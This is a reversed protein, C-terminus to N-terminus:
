FGVEVRSFIVLLRLVIFMLLCRLRREIGLASERDYNRSGEFCVADHNDRYPLDQSADGRPHFYARTMLSQELAQSGFDLAPLDEPPLEAVDAGCLAGDCATARRIKCGTCHELVQQLQPAQAFGM